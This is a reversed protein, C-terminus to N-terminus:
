KNSTNNWCYQDYFSLINFLSYFLFILVNGSNQIISILFGFSLKYKSHCTVDIVALDEAMVKVTPLHALVHLDASSHAM